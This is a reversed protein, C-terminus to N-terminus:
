TSCSSTPGCSRRWGCAQAGDGAQGAVQYGEEGWCRSSTWGILAEDEAVLVRLQPRTPGPM